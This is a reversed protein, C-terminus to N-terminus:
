WKYEHDHEFFVQTTAYSECLLGYLLKRKADPNFERTATISIHYELKRTCEHYKM